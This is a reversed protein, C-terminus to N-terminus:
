GPPIHYPCLVLLLPYSTSFVGLCSIPFLVSNLHRHTRQTLITFESARLTKPSPGSPTLDMKQPLGAGTPSVVPSVVTNLLLEVQVPPLLGLRLGQVCDAWTEEGDDCFLFLFGRTVVLDDKIMFGLIFGSDSASGIM